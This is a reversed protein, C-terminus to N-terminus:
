VFSNFQAGPVAADVEVAAGRHAEAADLGGAVRRRIRRVIRARPLALRSIRVTKRSLHQRLLVAVVAAAILEAPLCRCIIPGNTESWLPKRKTSLCSSKLNSCPGMVRLAGEGVFYKTQLIKPNQSGEKGRTVTLDM